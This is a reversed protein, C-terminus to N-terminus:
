RYFLTLVIVPIQRLKEDEKVINLFEFGDMEPMMIDLLVLSIDQESSRIKELADRGNEAYIVDYQQSIIFGLMQRNVYEDDVVVVKRKVSESYKSKRDM